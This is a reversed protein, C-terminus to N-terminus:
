LLKEVWASLQRLTSVEAADACHRAYASMASDRSDWDERPEPNLWYVRRVRAALAALLESRSPRYNCRADGCMILTTEPALDRGHERMFRELMAGYDSHGDDRVVGPRSLLLRTDIVGPSSEVLDTIEHPGDVFVFSRMRPLEAHLAHLLSLTFKAFEAVSGSVDCLVLLHPRSRHRRRLAPDLPVGGSSLARRMTRRMDLRGTAQLRTRRAAKAALRRALPRVADRMAALEAPGARLFEVDLTADRLQELSAALGNIEALRRRLEAGLAVRFEELREQSAAAAVRRDMAALGPIGDLRMSRQLLASVDLQRLVRYYYYRQTGTGGAPGAGAASSELGGFATVADSALADLPVDSGASGGRLAAVLRALLDPAAAMESPQASGEGSGPARAGAGGRQAQEHAARRDHAPFALDFAADFLPLDEARKVMTLRLARGVGARDLLDTSCLARVADVVEALSVPIGLQRLHAAFTVTVALVVHSVDSGFGGEQGGDAYDTHAGKGARAM